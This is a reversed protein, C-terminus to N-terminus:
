KWRESKRAPSYFRRAELGWERFKELIWEANEKDYASGLHHPHASLRKMYARLSDPNPIERFIEEWKQGKNMGSEQAFDTEVALVVIVILMLFKM